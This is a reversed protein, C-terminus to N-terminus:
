RASGTRTRSTSPRAHLRRPPRRSEPRRRPPRRPRSPRAGRHPSRRRPSDERAGDRPGASPQPQVAGAQRVFRPESRFAALAAASQGKALLDRGEKEKSVAFEYLAAAQEAAHAKVARDRADAARSRAQEAQSRVRRLDQEPERSARRPPETPEAPAATPSPPATAEAAAREAPATPIAVLQGAAPSRGRVAPSRVAAPATPIPQAAPPPAAEPKRWLLMFGLLAAATVGAVAATPAVWRPRGRPRGLPKTDVDTGSSTVARAVIETQGEDPLVESPTSPPPHPTTHAAFQRDLRDQFSPTVEGPAPQPCRGSARSSRPRTTWTTPRPTSRRSPSSRATSSRPPRSGTRGSRRWRRRFRRGCRRRRRAKRIRTPFRSRSARLPAGAAARQPERRRVPVQRDPGRLARRRARLPREPRRAERGLRALRVARALRVQAQRPLRGDLDDRRAPRTDQRDGPRDAQRAPTRGRRPHAHPQGARRRPPRREQPPPLGAGALAQHAIELTLPLDTPGQRRVLDALNVGDIFEMVLYAKGEEDLAFDHIACINPHKLRTATRAEEVFRRKMEENGLAAAKLVKVVRIEDLLRHRVRYLTGM